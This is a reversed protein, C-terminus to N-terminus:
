RVARRAESGILVAAGLRELAAFLERAIQAMLDATM